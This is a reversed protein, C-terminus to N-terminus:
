RTLQDLLYERVRDTAQTGALFGAILIEFKPTSKLAALTADSASGRKEMERRWRRRAKRAKFHALPHSSEPELGLVGVLELRFYRSDGSKMSEALNLDGVEERKVLMRKEGRWTKRRVEVQDETVRLESRRWWIGPLMAGLLLGVGIFVVKFIILPVWAGIVVFIAGFLLLGMGSKWAKPQHFRRVRADAERSETVGAFSLYHEISRTKEGDLLAEDLAPLDEDRDFVPIEFRGVLPGRMGVVEMELSYIWIVRNNLASEDTPEGKSKPIHFLVPFEFVSDASGLKEHVVTKEWEWLISERTRRNKGSGSATMRQNRLRM